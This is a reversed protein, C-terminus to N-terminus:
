IALYARLAELTRKGDEVGQAHVQRLRDPDKEMRKVALATQPRIVFIRGERELQLVDEVQANYRAHRDILAQCLKPYKRYFARIIHPNMPTKRYDAPRTLIVVNKDCGLDLCARVPISDAVGGDLYRRGDIPVFRSVFPMSASARLAELGDIINDLKMYEAEGTDVNTVVAYFDGGYREFAEEDFPDLELTIRYYGFERNVLDGTTLLSRLGMNRPDRMYKLNYRLARGKQGSFLNPGFCAGASVGMLADVRVGEDIWVDLVGSSYLSRMAGGELVLGLSM